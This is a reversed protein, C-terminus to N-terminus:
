YLLKRIVNLKVILRKSGEKTSSDVNGVDLQPVQQRRAENELSQAVELPERTQTDSIHNIDDIVKKRRRYANKDTQRWASLYTRNL